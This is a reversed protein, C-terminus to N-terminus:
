FFLDKLSLMIHLLDKRMKNKLILTRKFSSIFKHKWNTKNKGSLWGWLKSSHNSCAMGHVSPCSGHLDSGKRLRRLGRHFMCLCLSFAVIVSYQQLQFIPLPCHPWQLFIIKLFSLLKWLGPPPGLALFAAGELVGEDKREVKDFQEHM